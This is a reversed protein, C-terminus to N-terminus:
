SWENYPQSEAAGEDEGGKVVNMLKRSRADWYRALWLADAM